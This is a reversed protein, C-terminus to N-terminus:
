RQRMLEDYDRMIKRMDPRATDLMFNNIQRVPLVKPSTGTLFVATVESLRQLPLAEFRVPLHNNQCIELVKQRTIGKLVLSDPATVWVDGVWFFVNTRSGETILGDPNVMLIEYDQRIQKQSKMERRFTHNWRKLNPDDRTAELTSVRVGHQYMEPEPYIHVVQHIFTHVTGDAVVVVYFGLNGETVPQQQLYDYIGARIYDFGPFAHGSLKMSAELRRIHESIFVPKGAVVRLVEYYTEANGAFPQLAEAPKMQGDLWVKQGVAEEIMSNQKQIAFSSLLNDKAAM